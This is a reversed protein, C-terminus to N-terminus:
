ASCGNALQLAFFILMHFQDTLTLNNNEKNNNNNNNNNRCTQQFGFNHLWCLPSNGPFPKIFM